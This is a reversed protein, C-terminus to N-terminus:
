HMLPALAHTAYASGVALTVRRHKIAELIRVKDDVIV